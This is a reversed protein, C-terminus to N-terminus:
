EVGAESLKDAIFDGLLAIGEETPHLGDYLYQDANEEWIGCENYADICVVGFEEAIQKELQVFADLTGYGFNLSYCPQEEIECYIPTLLVLQMHPYSEQLVKLSYRLAGGFTTTDYLDEPNDLARGCNYDNTGHEIILVEVQEFDIHSLKEMREEFYYLAQANVKSYCDAYNMSAQQGQWDEYAIADALKAMCWQSSTVSGWVASEEFSMTTGGFAGNFATMDLREEVIVPISYDENANGIISDGLFVIDYRAKPEMDILPFVLFLVAIIVAIFNIILKEKNIKM